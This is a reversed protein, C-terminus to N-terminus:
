SAILICIKLNVTCFIIFFKGNPGCRVHGKTITDHIPEGHADVCWTLPGSGQERAYTGDSQCKPTVVTMGQNSSEAETFKWFIM